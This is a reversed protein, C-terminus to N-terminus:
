ESSAWRDSYLQNEQNPSPFCTEWVSHSTLSSTIVVGEGRVRPSMPESIRTLTSTMNINLSTIGPRDGLVLASEWRGVYSSSSRALRASRRARHLKLRHWKPSASNLRSVTSGYDQSQFRSDRTVSTRKMARRYVSDLLHAFTYSECDFQYLLAM